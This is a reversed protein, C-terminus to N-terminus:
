EILDKGDGNKKIDYVLSFFTAMNQPNKLLVRALDNHSKMVDVAASRVVQPLDGWLDDAVKWIFNSLTTSDSTKIEQM